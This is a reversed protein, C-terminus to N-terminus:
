LFGSIRYVVGEIEREGFRTWVSRGPTGLGTSLYLAGARYTINTPTDVEDMLITPDGGNVPYMTVRGTFRAYGGADPESEPDNLDFDLPTFALPWERTLEVVFVNGVEDVAVDIATTLGTIEDTIDGTDPDVRVVMADGPMYSIRTGYYDLIFGSFLAVWLDGSTPDLALGSPVPQQNSALVPMNAVVDPEIADLPDEVWDSPVRLVQNSGSDVLFFVDRATDYVLGNVTTRRQVFRTSSNDSRHVEFVGTNGLFAETGEPGAEFFPNDKTYFIRGDRLVVVDGLGFTEDHFTRFFVLSNYSPEDDIIVFREGDDDYDGDNNRDVMELIRGSGGPVAQQSDGIGAEVVIMSGTPSFAVGRPNNLNTAIAEIVINALEQASLDISLIPLIFMVFVFLRILSQKM